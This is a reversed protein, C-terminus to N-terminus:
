DKSVKNDSERFKEPKTTNYRASIHLCSNCPDKGNVDDVGYYLCKPCWIDFRVFHENVDSM